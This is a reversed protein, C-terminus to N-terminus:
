ENFDSSYFKGLINNNYYIDSNEIVENVFLYKTEYYTLLKKSPVFQLIQKNWDEPNSKAVLEKIEKQSGYYTKWDSETIVKKKAPTKGRLGQLKRQEKLEEVERKGLKKTREFYLVKKGIYSKNTPLHTVKYIFGYTNEPFDKTDQIINEKHKWM